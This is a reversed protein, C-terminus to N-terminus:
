HKQRTHQTESKVNSLINFHNIVFQLNQWPFTVFKAESFHFPTLEISSNVLTFSLVLDKNQEYLETTKNTWKTRKLKM